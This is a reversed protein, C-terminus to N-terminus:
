SYRAVSREDCRVSGLREEIDSRQDKAATPMEGQCWRSLECEGDIRLRTSCIM